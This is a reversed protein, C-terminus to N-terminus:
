SEENDLHAHLQNKIEATMEIMTPRFGLREFLARGSANHPSVGLMLTPSGLDRAADFASEVLLRGVGRTRAGPVVYLDHLWAGQERLEEISAPEIRVFAYGVPKTDIQALLLVVDDRALEGAFYESFTTEDGPVVFRQEDFTAHLQALALGFRALTPLDKLQARRIQIPQDTM